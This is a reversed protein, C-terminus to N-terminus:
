TSYTNNSLHELIQHQFKILTAESVLLFYVSKNRLPCQYMNNKSWYNLSSRVETSSNNHLLMLIQVSSLSLQSRETSPSILNWQWLSKNWQKSKLQLVSEQYPFVSMLQQDLVRISFSLRWSFRDMLLPFLTQQSILLFIVQRHRLSQFHLWLDVVTINTWKLQEKLFVHTFISSMVQILREAQHDEWFFLCKDTLLLRSQFITMFLWPTCATIESINESLADQSHLWSNFLLPMQHQPQLSWLTVWLMMNNLSGLSIQLQPDRKVLPAISAIFSKLKMM